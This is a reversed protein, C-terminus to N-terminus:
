IDDTTEQSEMQIKLEHIRKRRIIAHAAGGVLSGIINVEGAMQSSGMFGTIAFSLGLNLITGVLLYYSIFPGRLVDLVINITSIVITQLWYAINEAIVEISINLADMLLILKRKRPDNNPLCRKLPIGLIICGLTAVLILTVVSQFSFNGNMLTTTLVVLPIVTIALLLVSWMLAQTKIPEIHKRAVVINTELFLDLFKFTLVGLGMITLARVGTLMILARQVMDTLDTALGLNLDM